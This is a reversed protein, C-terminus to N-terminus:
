NDMTGDCSSSPFRGVCTQASLAIARGQKTTRRLRAMEVLLCTCLSTKSSGCTNYKLYIFLFYRGIFINIPEYQPPPSPPMGNDFECVHFDYCAVNIYCVLCM